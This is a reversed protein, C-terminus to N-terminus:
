PWKSLWSARAMGGKLVMCGELSTLLGELPWTAMAIHSELAMCSNLPHYLGKLLWIVKALAGLLCVSRCFASLGKLWSARSIQGKLAM